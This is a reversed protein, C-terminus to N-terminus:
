KNRDRVQKDRVKRDKAKGQRQSKERVKEGDRVKEGM